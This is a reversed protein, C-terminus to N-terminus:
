EKESIVAWTPATEKDYSVYRYVPTFDNISGYTQKDIFSFAIREPINVNADKTDAATIKLPIIHAEVLGKSDFIIRVETKEFASSVKCLDYYYGFTYETKGGSFSIKELLLETNEGIFDGKFFNLFETVAAIQEFSSFQSRESELLSSTLIQAEGQRSVAYEIIGDPDLAIRTDSNIFILRSSADTYVGVTSPNINFIELMSVIIPNSILALNTTNDSSHVNNFLSSVTNEVVINELCPSKELIEHHPPLILNDLNESSSALTAPILGENVTYATLNNSNFDYILAPSSETTFVSFSFIGGQGDNCLAAVSDNKDPYLALTKISCFEGGPQSFTKDLFACITTYPIGSPFDIVILDQMSLVAEWQSFDSKECIYSPSFIENFLPIYSEWLTQTLEHNTASTYPNYDVVLTVSTPSIYSPDATIESHENTSDTFIWFSSDLEVTKSANVTNHSFRLQMNQTWLILMFFVLIAIIVTKITEIAKKM